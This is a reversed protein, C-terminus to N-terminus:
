SLTPLYLNLVHEKEFEYPLGCNELGTRTGPQFIAFRSLVLARTEIGLGSASCM